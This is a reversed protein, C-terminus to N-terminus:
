AGGNYTISNYDSNLESLIITSQARESTSAWSSNAKWNGRIIELRFCIPNLTSFAQLLTCSSHGPTSSYDAGTAEYPNLQGHQQIGATSRRLNTWTTAGDVSYMVNYGANHSSVEGFLELEVKIISTFKRPTITIDTATQGFYFYNGSDIQARSYDTYARQQLVPAVLDAPQWTPVNLGGQTLVQGQAGAGVNQFASGDYYFMDGSNAAVSGLDSGLAMVQWFPNASTVPTVGTVNAVCIFSTGSHSVVDDKEYATTNNYAGRWSFKIKGLDVEFM